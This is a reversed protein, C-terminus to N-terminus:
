QGHCLLQLNDVITFFVIGTTSTVSAQTMTETAAITATPTRDTEVFFYEAVKPLLKIM